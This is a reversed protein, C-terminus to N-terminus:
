QKHFFGSIASAWRAMHRFISEQVCQRQLKLNENSKIIKIFQPSILNSDMDVRISEIRAAQWGELDEEILAGANAKLWLSISGFVVLVIILEAFRHGTKSLSLRMELLFLGAMMPLTLYLLWWSPRKKKSRM